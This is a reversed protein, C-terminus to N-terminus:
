APRAHRRAPARPRAPAQPRAPAGAAQARVGGLCFSWVEDVGVQPAGVQAALAQTHLIAILAQSVVLALSAADVDTRFAGGAAGRRLVEVLLDNQPALVRALAVPDEIALRLHLAVLPRTEPHHDDFTGGFLQRVYAELQRVPDTHAGIATRMAAVAEELAEAFVAVLLDDKHAFHEYFARLSTHARTVVEPVSFDTGSTEQMLARGAAVLRQLREARRAQAALRGAEAREAARGPRDVAATRRAPM